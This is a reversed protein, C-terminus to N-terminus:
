GVGDRLQKRAWRDRELPNQRNEASLWAAPIRNHTNIARYILASPKNWRAKTVPDFGYLGFRQTFGEVWEWNDWDTWHLYGIIPVGSQILHYMVSLQDVLFKPRLSDDVDAVGNETIMIPLGFQNWADLAAEALGDPDVTWGYTNVQKGHRQDHFGNIDNFGALRFRLYERSYYNLGFYDLSGILGEIKQGMGFPPLARGARISHTFWHNMVYNNGKALAQDGPHWLRSPRTPLINQAISVKVNHGQRAAVDRLAQTALAHMRLLNVYAAGFKHVSFERPPWVADGYKMGVLINPENITSWWTVRDGVREAIKRTFREFLEPTRSSTLGGEAALWKPLAFHLLTVVPEIGKAKQIAIEEIYHDIAAEDWVGEQPEVRAWDIGFGHANQGMAALHSYDTHLRNWHNPGDNPSSGDKIASPTSEALESFDNDVRGAAGRGGGEVQTPATQTGWFFGPPFRFDDARAALVPVREGRAM